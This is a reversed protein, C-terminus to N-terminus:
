CFSHRSVSACRSHTHCEAFVLMCVCVYRVFAVLAVQENTGVTDRHCFLWLTAAAFAVVTIKLAIGRQLIRCVKHAYDWVSM